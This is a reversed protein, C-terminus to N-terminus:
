SLWVGLFSCCSVVFLLEWVIGIIKDIVEFERRQITIAERAEFYPLRRARNRDIDQQTMTGQMRTAVDVAPDHNRERATNLSGIGSAKGDERNMYDKPYLQELSEGDGLGGSLSGRSDISSSHINSVDDGSVRTKSGVDVDCRKRSSAVVDTKRDTIVDGYAEQFLPKAAERVATETNESTGVCEPKAVLQGDRRFGITGDALRIPQNGTKKEVAKSTDSKTEGPIFFM